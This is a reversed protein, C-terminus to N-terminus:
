APHGTCDGERRLPPQPPGHLFIEFQLNFIEFKCKEIKLKFDQADRSGRPGGKRLPPVNAAM